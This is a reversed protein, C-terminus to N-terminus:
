TSRKIRCKVYSVLDSLLAALIGVVLTGPFYLLAITIATSRGLGGDGVADMMIGGLLITVPLSLAISIVFTFLPRIYSLCFAISWFYVVFGKFWPTLTSYPNSFLWTMVVGCPALGLAVALIGTAIIESTEPFIFFLFASFLDGKPEEKPTMIEM